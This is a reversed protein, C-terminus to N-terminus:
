RKPQYHLETIGCEFPRAAVLGFRQNHGVDPFVPMGGGYAVPNVFLHLDDLLDHAILDQVLSGGGYVILDGGPQSKLRNITGALDGGAVVANEWPPETLSNSIVVRPTDNMKDILVDPEGEPRAAWAPIFGEATKRGLVICDVKEHLAIVRAYLDDSWPTSTGDQNTSDMYGDVSVQVHLRFTRMPPGKPNPHKQWQTSRGVEPDVM